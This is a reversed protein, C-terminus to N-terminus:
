LYKIKKTSNTKVKEQFKDRNARSTLLFNQYYINTKYPNNVLYEPYKEYIYEYINILRRSTLPRTSCWDYRKQTSVKNLAVILAVPHYGAKVLYDVARKDAKYEYKKPSSYYAIRQFYGRAVGTYSDVVHSIEHSLVAALEDEDELQAYLGRYIVIRRHKKSTTIAIDTHKDLAFVTRNEIGNANLIRFGVQNVQKQLRAFERTDILYADAYAKTTFCIIMLFLIIFFKKM